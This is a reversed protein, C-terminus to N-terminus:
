FSLSRLNDTVRRSRVAASEVVASAAAAPNDGSPNMRLATACSTLVASRAFGTGSPSTTSPDAFAGTVMTSYAEILQPWQASNWLTVKGFILDSYMSVLLTRKM